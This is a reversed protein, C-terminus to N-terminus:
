ILTICYRERPFYRTYLASLPRSVRTISLRHARRGGSSRARHQVPYHSPPGSPGDVRPRQEELVPRLARMGALRVSDPTDGGVLLFHRSALTGRSGVLQGLTAIEGLTPLIRGCVVSGLLGAIVRSPPSSCWELVNGNWERIPCRGSFEDTLVATGLRLRSRHRHVHPHRWM